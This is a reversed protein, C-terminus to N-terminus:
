GTQEPNTHLLSGDAKGSADRQRPPFAPYGNRQGDAAPDDMPSSSSTRQTACALGAEYVGQPVTHIPKKKETQKM